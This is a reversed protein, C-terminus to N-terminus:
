LSAKYVLGFNNDYKHCVLYFKCYCWYRIDPLGYKHYGNELKLRDDESLELVKIPKM